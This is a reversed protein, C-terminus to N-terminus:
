AARPTPLQAVHQPQATRVRDWDCRRASHTDRDSTPYARQCCRAQTHRSDAITAVVRRQELRPPASFPRQDRHNLLRVDVTDACAADIVQDLREAHGPDGLALDAPHALRQVRFHVSKPRASEIAAVRVALEVGCEDFDPLVRTTLMATTM